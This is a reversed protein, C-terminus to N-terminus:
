FVLFMQIAFLVVYVLVGFVISVIYGALAWKGCSKAKKPTKDNMTLYFILGLIPVLFSAVNYGASPIDLEPPQPQYDYRNQWGNNNTQCDGGTPPTSQYPNGNPTFGNQPPTNFGGNGSNEPQVGGNPEGSLMKGCNICFSDNPNIQAGCHRCYM